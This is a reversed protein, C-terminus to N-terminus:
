LQTSSWSVQQFAPVPSGVALEITAHPKLPIDQPAGKWPKGDVIATVKGSNGAVASPSLPQRWEDFFQGLTYIRATPSEIHIIGDSAHTHLWYICKQASFFPGYATNQSVPDLMGIAGPLARPAGNVYVQLHVHIHYALQELPACQILGDITTGPATSSAPALTAGQELPIGEPGPAGTATTSTSATSGTSSTGSTSTSQTSQTTSSSSGCAALVLTLAVAALLLRIPHRM